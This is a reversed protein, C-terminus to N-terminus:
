FRNRDCKAIARGKANPLLSVAGIKTVRLGRKKNSIIPGTIGFM